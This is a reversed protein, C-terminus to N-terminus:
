SFKIDLPALRPFRFCVFLCVVYKRLLSQYHYFYFGMHAGRRNDSHSNGQVLLSFFDVFDYHISSTLCHRRTSYVRKTKTSYYWWFCIISFTIIRAGAGVYLLAFFDVSLKDVMGCAILSFYDCTNSDAASLPKSAATSSNSWYKSRNNHSAYSSPIFVSLILVLDEDEEWVVVTTSFLFPTIINPICRDPVDMSAPKITSSIPYLTPLGRIWTLM